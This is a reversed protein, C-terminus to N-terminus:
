AIGVIAFPCLAAAYNQKAADLAEKAAMFNAEAKKWVDRRLEIVEKSEM